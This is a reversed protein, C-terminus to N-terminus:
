PETVEYSAIGPAYDGSHRPLRCVIQYFGREPAPKAQFTLREWSTGSATSLYRDDERYLGGSSYRSEATCWISVLEAASNRVVVSFEAYGDVTNDRVVPCVLTLPESTSVNYVVGSTSYYPTGESQADQQCNTAPYVKRDSGEAAGTLAILAYITGAAVANINRNM